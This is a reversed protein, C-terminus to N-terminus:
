ATKQVGCQGVQFQNQTEPEPGLSYNSELYLTDPQVTFLSRLDSTSGCEFWIGRFSIGKLTTTKWFVAHM